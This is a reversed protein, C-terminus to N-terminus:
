SPGNKKLRRQRLRQQAVGFGGAQLGELMGVAAFPGALAPLLVVGAAAVAAIGLSKTVGLRALYELRGEDKRREISKM